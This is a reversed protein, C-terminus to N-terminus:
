ERWVDGVLPQSKLFDMDKDLASCAVHAGARVIAEGRDGSLPIHFILSCSGHLSFVSDRLALLDEESYKMEVPPCLRLHLERWSREKLTAPDLLEKVQFSPKGRIGDFNGKFCYVRDAALQAQLQDFIEPFFVVDISGSYDELTGFAMRRGQKTMSQKFDRMLAVVIYEKGQIARELHALDLTSSREWVMRHEDMPHGTFYFGLLAKEFDLLDQRVYEESHEIAFPPFVTEDGSDFLSGQRSSEYEIKNAAWDLAKELNLVLERRRHGLSDFCGANILSELIKKNLGANDMRSLFELFDKFPGRATRQEVVAEAVGQGIGKIGLLGYVIDNAEVSFMAESYNIDPPLVKIGMTRAEAIYQTLKDTDNIENTLNAAMFEAPYNAKLYATRYAIVSYAAAHSKNFGYGAFPELITFIREADEKSYGRGIAGKIFPEREKDLIEKKKKGMARRLLDARGLSYGAVERAVQMVQEQYVIVGYTGKLYKELSPHPYEIPIKGNKSDIFQNINDIPGPRYLANLAILDEISGPKAKKLIGQMGSSEFQFVSTSKGEGLLRFTKADDEPIDSERLDINHKKLLKLTNKILTLTKLGLFDMKVLGCDELWEMTYQTSISETKPDRYLPVYDTLESKGIVIGAAHISSHRHLHELRAGIKFLEQYRPDAALVGLKPEMGFATELTMKPDEPILKAINNAEEFPIDLARSVDKIVAKAKLTGFTIIQSVRDTGYKRTVYDIVDGRGEFCFDVDFDPMSIREPNLFREFLLDYKLPDIDTIRLSYAVISGAGSGRGPGVPIDHEKAWHIFDWVILFYGTFGMKIIISLEYETRDLIEQGANPYREALGKFTLDRIYAEPSEFEAPIEYDPLMPGPFDIKLKVMENIKLTNSLADPTEHFLSEMEEATKLYFHDNPFRMRGPDARKRNTGVCLLIDQAVADEKKIYHLDNTAILSIGQRRSLAILEKNVLKQEELGHDQLELYFHDPGFLGRYYLAKREAAETRGALILSPIEGALCASSIILGKSHVALIEDDIRPKYYFGETYALSSLKILNKYGEYDQALAILHWYKNGSETESHEKRSGSAMYFECGIIPNLGEEICAKNFTLAGFLNGHDTIALGPMGLRKATSALEKVPAAGDLLSFDTHNHLHVFEAM